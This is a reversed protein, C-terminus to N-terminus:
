AHPALVEGLVRRLQELTFPKILFPRETSDLFTRTEASMIDGTIFVVRGALRPHTALARQWVIQGDVDPLRLDLMVLDYAPEEELRFLAEQGTAAQVV